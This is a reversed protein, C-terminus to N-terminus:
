QMLGLGASSPWRTSTVVLRPDSYIQIFHKHIIRTFKTGCMVTIKGSGANVSSFIRFMDYELCYENKKNLM